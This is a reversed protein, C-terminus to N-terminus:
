CKIFHLFTECIIVYSEKFSLAFIKYVNKGHHIVNLSHDHLFFFEEANLWPIIQVVVAMEELNYKQKCWQEESQNEDLM